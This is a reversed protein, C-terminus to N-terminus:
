IQNRGEARKVANEMASKEALAKLERRQQKSPLWSCAHEHPKTPLPITIFFSGAPIVITRTKEIGYEKPITMRGRDDVTVMAM